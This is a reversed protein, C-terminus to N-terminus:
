CTTRTSASATGNTTSGVGFRHRNELDARWPGKERLFSPLRVTAQGYVPGRPSKILLLTMSIVFPGGYCILCYLWLWRRFSDPSTRFYFVLFVNIAM